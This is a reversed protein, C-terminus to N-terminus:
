CCRKPHTSRAGSTVITVLIKLKIYSSILSTILLQLDFSLCYLPWFSFPCFYFGHHVFCLVCLVVISCWSGRSFDPTFESAGTPYATGAGGTAGTTSSKICVRHNITFSYKAPNHNRCTSCIWPWKQCLNETVTLLTM